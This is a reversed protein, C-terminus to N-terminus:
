DLYNLLEGFIHLQIPNLHHEPFEDDKSVAESLSNVSHHHNSINLQKLLIPDGQAHAILQIWFNYYNFTGKLCTIYITLSEDESAM